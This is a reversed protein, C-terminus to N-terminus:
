HIPLTVLPKEGRDLWGLVVKFTGEHNLACRQSCVNNSDTSVTKMQELIVM